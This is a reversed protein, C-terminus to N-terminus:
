ADISFIELADLFAPWAPESSRPVHEKSDLGWL